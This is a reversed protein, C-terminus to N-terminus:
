SSKIIRGYLSDMVCVYSLGEILTSILLQLKSLLKLINRLLPGPDNKRVVMVVLGVHIIDYKGVLNEPIPAM